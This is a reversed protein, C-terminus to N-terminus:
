VKIITLNEKSSLHKCLQKLHSNNYFNALHELDKLNKKTAFMSMLNTCCDILTGIQYTHAFQFLEPLDTANKNNSSIVKESFARGGLYIFDVFAQVTGQSFEAFSVANNTNEKMDSTLLKQLAPGGYLYLINAHVKIVGDKSILSFDCLKQEQYLSYFVKSMDEQAPIFKPPIPYVLHFEERWTIRIVDVKEMTAHALWQLQQEKKDETYLAHFFEALKPLAPKVFHHYWSYGKRECSMDVLSSEKKFYYERAREVVLIELEKKCEFGEAFFKRLEEILNQTEEVIHKRGSFNINKGEISVFFLDSDKKNQHPLIAKCYTLWFLDKDKIITEFDNKDLCADLKDSNQSFKVNQANQLSSNAVPFEMSSYFKM